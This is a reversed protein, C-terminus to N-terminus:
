HPRYLLMSLSTSDIPGELNFVRFLSSNTAGREFNENNEEIYLFKNNHILTIPKTQSEM